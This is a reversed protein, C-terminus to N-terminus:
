VDVEFGISNIKRCTGCIQQSVQSDATNEVGVVVVAVVEPRGM